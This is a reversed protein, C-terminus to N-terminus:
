ATSAVWGLKSMFQLKDTELRWTPILFDYWANRPPLFTDNLRREALADRSPRQEAMRVEWEGLNSDGLLIAIVRINLDPYRNRYKSVMQDCVDISVPLISIPCEATPVTDSLRNFYFNNGIQDVDWNDPDADIQPRYDRDFDDMSVFHYDVGHQEGARMERTTSGVPRKAGIGCENLVRVAHETLTTKGVASAGCVFALTPEVPLPGREVVLGALESM